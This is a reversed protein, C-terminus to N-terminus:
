DRAQSWARSALARLDDAMAVGFLRRRRDMVEIASLLLM